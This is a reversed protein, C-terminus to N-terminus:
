VQAIVEGEEFSDFTVSDPRPANQAMEISKRAAGESEWVTIAMGHGDRPGVWYGAVVGPAEKVRPIVNARLHELSEEEHGAQISVRTIVAHM